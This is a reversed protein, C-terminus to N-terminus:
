QESSNSLVLSFTQLNPAHWGRDHAKWARGLTRWRLIMSPIPAVSLTGTCTDQLHKRLNKKNPFELYLISFNTDPRHFGILPELGTKGYFASSITTPGITIWLAPLHRCPIFVTHLHQGPRYNFRPKISMKSLAPRFSVELM